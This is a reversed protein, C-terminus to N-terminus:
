SPMGALEEPRGWRQYLKVLRARAARRYRNGPPRSAILDEYAEVLLGEAEEYRELDTLAEGWVTEALATLWAGEPLRARRIRVAEAAHTEAEEARDTELLLRALGIQATATLLADQRASGLAMALAQRLHEEAEEYRRLDALLVGINALDRAVREDGEGSYKQDLELTQRAYRLAGEYNGRDALVRSLGDLNESLSPHEYGFVRRRLNLAQLHIREAGALDGQDQRLRALDTLARAVVPHEYGLRETNIALAERLHTEAEAYQGTAQLVAALNELYAALDPHGEDLVRRALDVAERHLTESREYDARARSVTGMMDLTRAVSPHEAGFVGRRMALSERLLRDAEEYDGRRYRLAGLNGAVSALLVRDDGQLLRGRAMAERYVSDALTSRGADEFTLALANLTRINAPHSRPLRRQRIELSRRLAQEANEFEGDARFLVGLDYFSEAVELEHSDGLSQRIRLASELLPRAEEHMGLAEYVRGVVGMMRAQLAPDDALQREIRGSGRDLLERATLERGRSEGPDAVDFLGALFVSVEEARAAREEALDLARSMRAVYAGGAVGVGVFLAAIALLTRRHRGVYKGVRYVNSGSLMRLPVSERHRVLDDSMRAVSVYRDEERKGLATLIIADLDGSLDHQLREPDTSRELAVVYPEIRIRGSGDERVRDEERTVAVSPPDIRGERITQQIDEPTERSFRYPRHGSVLRYLLVGLSHVDTATTLPRGDIQEPSTYEPALPDFLLRISTARTPRKLRSLAAPPALKVAGEVGFKVTTPRIDGHVFMHSHVHEVASCLDLFLSVRQDLTLRERDCYTTLSHGALLETVLFLDGAGTEGGDLVRALNPHDLKRLRALESELEHGSGELRDGAALVRMSVPRDLAEQPDVALYEEWLARRGIARLVRYPGIPRGVYGLDPTTGGDGDRERIATGLYGGELAAAAAALLAELAAVVQSEGDFRGALYERRQAAPLESAEAFVRHLDDWARSRRKM